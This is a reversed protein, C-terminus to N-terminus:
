ATRPGETIPNLQRLLTYIERSIYGKIGHIAERRTLGQTTRQHLYRVPHTAKALLELADTCTLTLTKYYADLAAPFYDRLASRLRLTHRTREWILTQHARAVVFSVVVM